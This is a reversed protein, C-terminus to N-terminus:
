RVSKGVREFNKYHYRYQENQKVELQTMCLNRSSRRIKQGQLSPWICSESDLIVIRTIGDPITFLFSNSEYMDRRWNQGKRILSAYRRDFSFLGDISYVQYEPLHYMYQKWFPTSSLLITDYPSFKDKIYFVKSSLEFDNRRIDTYHLSSQRYPRLHQSDRNYFFIVLNCVVLLSTILFLFYRKKGFEKALFLSLLIIFYALFNLQYGAHDTRVFINFFFPPVFWVISFIIFKKQWNSIRPNRRLKVVVRLVFGVLIIMGAGITLFFGSGLEFQKRLFFTLSPNILASKAALSSASLFHDLGGTLLVFPVFWFFFSIGFAVVAKLREIFSLSFVGFLFLPLTLMVEQPRVGLSAAYLVGLLLALKKGKFVIEYVCWAVSTTMVLVVIYGYTTIGFFYISPSSLFYCAAIVGCTKNFLSRGFLFFIVAGIGSFLVSVLVLAQHPDNTLPLLTKALGVYLPYGPATPNDQEFSYNVLAISYTPGDMHSQMKEVLPLRSFIGVSFFILCLLIDQRKMFFLRIIDHPYAFNGAYM